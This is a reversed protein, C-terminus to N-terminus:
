CDPDFDHWEDAETPEPYDDEGFWDYDPDVYEDAYVEVDVFNDYDDM